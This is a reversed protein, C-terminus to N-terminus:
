AIASEFCNILRLGFGIAPVFEWLLFVHCSVAQCHFIDLLMHLHESGVTSHLRQGLQM